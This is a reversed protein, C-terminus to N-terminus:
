EASGFDRGGLAALREFLEHALRQPVFQRPMSTGALWRPHPAEPFEPMQM